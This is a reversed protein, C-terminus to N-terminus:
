GRHLSRDIIEQKMAPSLDDFYASYGSVRVLLWPQRGPHDRAEVLLAPDLVNLQLQMGGRAFYGRVLGAVACAGAEGGLSGADLKLNVNVGNRALRALDAAAASALAATPGLRDRGNACSLGSALPQGARRGSPLAGTTEGFARHATVSYFGAWYCGGRTSRHSALAGAFIEMVRQALRDAAPDDNGYKPARLLQGRLVEHGQFDRELARLLTPLECLRRRFVVDDVAALSDAVDAVGVGQVGSGNYTAGGASADRGSELCGGLLASTLPTPHLRANAREIAHLDRILRAVLEEIQVRLLEILEEISRCCAAAPPAAEGGRKTGLVRELPLALNVLAADTSGFTVGCAVPEVCGVPSYDRADELSTGRGVLMPVVVEDNMLSPAASGDRLMRAVRAVYAPPSAAHLRAHFNPQRMRLHEMADLFIWSLDNTADAGRRDTGGVVVVQGNFMGGHFRTIRRSFVPILESLKVTFCGVLERAGREDIRGAELDRRYYPYLIQDLRGPSVANDLSELNLAIQAFLLSQLAEHLTRAPHRPVRECVEAIRELEARRGPEREDDALRRAERAYPAALAALGRCAIEVAAHFGRAEPDDSQARARAAAAAIGSSGLELLRRYDPV